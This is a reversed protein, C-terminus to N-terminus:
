GPTRRKELKESKEAGPAGGLSLEALENQFRIKALMHKEQLGVLSTTAKALKDSVEALKRELNQMLPGATKVAKLTVLQGHLENMRARYEDMQERLTAQQEQLTTMENRLRGVEGLTRRLKPDAEPEAVHALVLDFDSPSRLDITKFVPTSEEIEVEVRANPGIEAKFVHSTGLREPKSPGKTLAYGQRVNHRVYVTAKESTRNQLVVVKRRTHKVETSCVGRQVSLIRSVHDREAEKTEVFIQRDLAFPVFAIARAPIPESLGEGIFRGEGFVTVPGSELTSDSPNKLRLSRFAYAANGRASEPDYLYVVEGETEANVVSVMASSGRPVNMPTKTEFHSTGVPDGAGAPSAGTTPEPAKPQGPTSGPPVEVIRVGGRENRQEAGAIAVVREAPVGDRILKERARNARSLAAANKDSDAADAYGEIVIQNQTARLNRSAERLAGQQNGAPGGNTVTAAEIQTPSIPLGSVSSGVTGRAAGGMVSQARGYPMQSPPPPPMDKSPEARKPASAYAPRASSPKGVVTVEEDSSALARDDLDMVVRRPAQQQNFSAGGTPPAMALLDGSQLTERQVTRISRLDFRFSLASSSGVGLRVNQWDEGSTNDVIAWAQMSVRGPKGLTVRYSPKWSPSETVYTLRLDHPASGSLKINMAILGDRSRPATDLSSPYSVPAPDGTKADTVVLSKLFDDVKDAPVQLTLTDDKVNARREFYAIGNRYVVVRGLAADSSHVYSASSACGVLLPAFLLALLPAHRRTLM